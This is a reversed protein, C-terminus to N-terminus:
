SPRIQVIQFYNGDVDAFTAIYGYEQMHYVDAIKKVGAKKLKKFAKKIDDVELNFLFRKPDKNKGKIESHDIIYIPTGDGAELEYYEEDNEGFVAEATIKLGVKDQYFHALQKANESFLTLSELIKIM